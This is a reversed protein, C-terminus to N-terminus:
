ALKQGKEITISTNYCFYRYNDLNKKRLSKLSKDQTANYTSSIVPSYFRMKNSRKESDREAYNKSYLLPHAMIPTHVLDFDVGCEVEIKRLLILLNFFIMCVMMYLGLM